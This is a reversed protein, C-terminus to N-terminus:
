KVQRLSLKRKRFICLITDVNYEKPPYPIFSVICHLGRVETCPANPVHSLHCKDKHLMYLEAFESIDRIFFSSTYNEYKLKHIAGVVVEIPLSEEAAPCASGEQCEVTYKKYDRNDM